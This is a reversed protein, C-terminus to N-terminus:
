LQTPLRKLDHHQKAWTTMLRESKDAIEAAAHKYLDRTNKQAQQM